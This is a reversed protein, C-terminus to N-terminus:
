EFLTLQALSSQAFDGSESTKVDLRMFIHVDKITTVKYIYIYINVKYFIRCEFHVDPLFILFVMAEM